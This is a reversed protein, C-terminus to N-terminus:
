QVSLSFIFKDDLRPLPNRFMDFLEKMARNVTISIKDGANASSEWDVGIM